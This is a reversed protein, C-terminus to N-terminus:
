GTSRPSTPIRAATVKATFAKDARRIVALVTRDAMPVTTAYYEGTPSIKISGYVDKRLFPELDVQAAAPCAAVALALGALRGKWSKM